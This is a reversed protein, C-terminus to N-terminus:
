LNIGTINLIDQEKEEEMPTSKRKGAANINILEITKLKEERKKPALKKNLYDETNLLWHSLEVKFDDSEQLRKQIEKVWHPQGNDEAFILPLAKAIFPDEYEKSKFLEKVRKKEEREQKQREQEQQEHEVKKKDVIEQFGQVYQKRIDEAVDELELNKKHQSLKHNIYDDDWKNAEKYFKAILGIANKEETLDLAKIPEIINDYADVFPQYDKVGSAIAKVLEARTPDIDDKLIIAKEELKKYQGQQQTAILGRFLEETVEVEEILDHLSDYTKDGHTVQYDDWSQDDLFSKAVKYLETKENTNQNDTIEEQAEETQSLPNLEIEEQLADGSINLIDQEPNQTSEEKKPPEYDAFMLKALQEDSMMEQNETM